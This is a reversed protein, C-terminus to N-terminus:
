ASACPVYVMTGYVTKLRGSTWETVLTGNDYSLVRQDNPGAAEGKPGIYSRGANDKKVFFEAPGPQGPAHMVVGGNAGATMKYPNRCAIKAQKLTRERDEARHYSALGYNGPLSATTIQVVAPPPPTPAAAQPQLSTTPSTSTCAALGTLLISAALRSFARIM